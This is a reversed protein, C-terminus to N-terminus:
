VSELTHNVADVLQIFVREIGHTSLKLLKHSEIVIQRLHLTGIVTVEITCVYETVQKQFENLGFRM